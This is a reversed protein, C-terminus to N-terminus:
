VSSQARAPTDAGYGSGQTIMELRLNRASTTHAISAEKAAVDEGAEIADLITRHEQIAEEWRGPQAVAPEPYRRIHVMLRELLDCLTANHSAQWVSVHFAHDMAAMDAPNRERLEVMQGHMRRMVAMDYDTSMRAAWQAAMGELVTLCDYIELAEQPTPEHVVLKRGNRQLLGDQELRRFAERVPTRSVGFEEAVSTEILVDGPRYGGYMIATRLREYLSPDAPM